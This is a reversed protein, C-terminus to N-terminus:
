SKSKRREERSRKREEHAHHHALAKHDKKMQELGAFSFRTIHDSVQEMREPTMKFEPWLQALMIRAHSYHVIQAIISHAALRTLDHDRPLGILASVAARMGDYVPRATENVVISIAPTPQALEHVMLRFHWAPRDGGFIHQVMAHITRCIVEKPPGATELETRISGTRAGMSHRLVETYLELKDGFHYNVLAINVGARACIDRVTAGQFGHEAFVEGAADILRSRTTDTLKPSVAKPTM